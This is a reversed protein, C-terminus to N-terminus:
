PQRYDASSITEPFLQAHLEQIKLLQAGLEEASKNAKDCLRELHAIMRVARWFQKPSGTPFVILQGFMKISPASNGDFNLKRVTELYNRKTQQYNKWREM